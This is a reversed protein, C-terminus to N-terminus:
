CTSFPYSNSNSFNALAIAQDEPNPPPPPLPLNIQNNPMVWPSGGEEPHYGYHHKANPIQKHEAGPEDAARIERREKKDPLAPMENLRKPPTRIEPHNAMFISLDIYDPLAYGFHQALAIRPNEILEETFEPSRWSLAIAKLWVNKWGKLQKKTGDITAM